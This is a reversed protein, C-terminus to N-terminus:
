VSLGIWRDVSPPGVMRRIGSMGARGSVIVASLRGIADVQFSTRLRLSGNGVGCGDGCERRAASAFQM